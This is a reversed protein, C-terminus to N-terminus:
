RLEKIVNEALYRGGIDNPHLLDGTEYTPINYRFPKSDSGNGTDKSNNFVFSLRGERDWNITPVGILKSAKRIQNAKEIFDFPKDTHGYYLGSPTIVYLRAHPFRKQLEDVIYALTGAFTTRKKTAICEEYKDVFRQQDPEDNTGGEILVVDPQAGKPIKSLQNAITNTNGAREKLTASVKGLNVLTVDSLQEMQKTWKRMESYSDGLILVNGLRPKAHTWIFDYRRVTNYNEVFPICFMNAVTKLQNIKISDIGNIRSGYSLPSLIFIRADPVQSRIYLVIRYMAGAFNSNTVKRCDKSVAINKTRPMTGTITCVKGYPYDFLAQEYAEYQQFSDPSDNCGLQLFVIDPKREALNKDSLIRRVDESMGNGATLKCGYCSTVHHVNLESDDTLCWRWSEEVQKNDSIIVATGKAIITLSVAITTFLIILRKMDITELKNIRAKEVKWEDM